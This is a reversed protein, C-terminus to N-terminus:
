VSPMQINLTSEPILQFGDGIQSPTLGFEEAVVERVYRDITTSVSETLPVKIGRANKAIHSAFDRISDFPVRLPHSFLLSEAKYAAVAGFLLTGVFILPGLIIKVFWPAEDAIGLFSLIPTLLLVMFVCVFPYTIFISLWMAWKPNRLEPLKCELEEALSSWKAHRSHVPVSKDPSSTSDITEPVVGGIAMLGLQLRGFAEQQVEEDPPELSLPVTADHSLGRRRAIYNVLKAVSAVDGIETPNRVQFARTARSIVLLGQHLDRDFSDNGLGM